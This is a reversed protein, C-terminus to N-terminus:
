RQEPVIVLDRRTGPPVDVDGEWYFMTNRHSQPESVYGRLVLGEMEPWWPVVGVVRGDREPDTQGDWPNSERGRSDLLCVELNM